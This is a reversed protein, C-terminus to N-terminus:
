LIQDDDVAPHPVVIMQDAQPRAIITTAGSPWQISVQDISTNQGLGFHAVPEMQCLYGSGGDIVSATVRDGQQITVLAGRAPAGSRTLPRIRLWHNNNTPIHYYSLPQPASEGHAILLELRGDGDIDAIAAGTGLGDPESADGIDLEIWQGNRRGFLRNPEGINNFFLEPNGDNDFDAAIVTRIRSPTALEAPAINHFPLTNGARVWLRQPGEWNGYAIDICGDDNADFLAVGRGHHQRDAVQCDNAVDIFTGDGRNAFVLNAGRENIAVLDVDNGFLPAAAVARGGTAYNIGVARATESLRWNADLEYLRMVAGYNAVFFAYRGFGFRDVVCVSRGASRNALQQTEPQGFLDVRQGGHLAFLRDHQQKPGAFTDSNLVYIEEIGDGDIDGAAIGIAQGHQDALVADAADLLGRGNWKLALNHYGFGTVVFEFEGDGDIDCVAIGYSLRDVNNFILDHRAIFMSREYSALYM